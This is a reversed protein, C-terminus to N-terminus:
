IGDHTSESHRSGVQQYRVIHAESLRDFSTENNLLEQEAM